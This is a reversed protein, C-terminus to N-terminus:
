FNWIWIPSKFGWPIKSVQSNEEHRKKFCRPVRDCSMDLDCGKSVVVNVKKEKPEVSGFM